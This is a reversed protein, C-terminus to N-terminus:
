WGKLSKIARAIAIVRDAEIGRQLKSVGFGIHSVGKKIPITAKMQITLEEVAVNLQDLLEFNGVVGEEKFIPATARSM